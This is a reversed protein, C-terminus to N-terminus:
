NDLAHCIAAISSVKSALHRNFDDTCYASNGRGAAQVAKRGKSRPAKQGGSRSFLYPVRLIIIFFSRESGMLSMTVAATTDSSGTM